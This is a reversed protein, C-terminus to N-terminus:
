TWVNIAIKYPNNGLLLKTKVFVRPRSLFKYEYDVVGLEHSEVYSVPLFLASFYVKSISVLQRKRSIKSLLRETWKEDAKIARM